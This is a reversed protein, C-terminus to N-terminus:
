AGPNNQSLRQTNALTQATQAAIPAAQLIQGLEAQAQEQEDEAAMVEPSKMAKAPVGNVEAVIRAVEATDFRKYITPDIQAIPALTEFARLIGVAEEARAARTMPSQYEITLAKGTREIWDRIVQPMEPHKGQRYLIGSERRIMPGLWESQMRGIVPATMQGQQQAILMAQTATMNPNELLVRFYVGMFGDDIQNRTDMMMERAIGPQAGNSWPMVMPRGNDDMTGPNHTGPALDFESVDDRSLTPPDVAMNAAEIMTRRMENLMSIDPLHAIAPSRGYVERPSVSYRTVIYPQEYFGEEGVIERGDVFVYYGAFPHHDIMGSDYDERPGVCHVFRFKKHMEGKNYADQIKQPCRDRFMQIAQRATLEFDRHVTDILGEASDLICIESLHITRYKIGGGQRAEVLMAGTGFAGLSLRKEHAQSAFNARPSYRTEWLTKNLGELFVKAGHDADVAEDGTILHHWLTTRPMLGAEIAAAFKDLAAMPFGDYQQLNRDEGPARRSNFDDMSPLVLRAVREWLNDWNQRRGIMADHRRILDDANM